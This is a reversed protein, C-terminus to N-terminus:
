VEQIVDVNVYKLGFAKAEARTSMWIDMKNWYRKNMRDEVVFVKDGYLEPIKVKTGIPLFNAAVIGDRVHSGSATIFPNADTQDTTSSYATIPILVTREVSYTPELVVIPPPSIALFANGGVLYSAPSPKQIATDVSNESFDPVNVFVSRGYILDLANINYYALSYQASLIFAMGALVVLVKPLIRLTKFKRLGIVFRIKVSRTKIKKITNVGKKVLLPGLKSVM